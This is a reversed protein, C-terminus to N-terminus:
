RQYERPPAALREEDSPVDAWSPVTRQLRANGNAWLYHGVSGDTHEYWGGITVPEKTTAM